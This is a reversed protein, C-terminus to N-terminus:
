KQAVILPLIIMLGISHIIMVRPKAMEDESAIAQLDPDPSFAPENFVILSDPSDGLQKSCSGSGSRVSIPTDARARKDSERLAGVDCCLDSVIKSIRAVLAKM